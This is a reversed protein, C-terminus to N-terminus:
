RCAECLLEALVFSILCSKKYRRPPEGRLEFSCKFWVMEESTSGKALFRTHLMCRKRCVANSVIAISYKFFIGEDKDLDPPM